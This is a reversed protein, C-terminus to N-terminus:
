EPETNNVSGGRDWKVEVFGCYGTVYFCDVITLPSNFTRIKQASSPYSAHVRHYVRLSLLPIYWVFISLMHAPTLFIPCPQDGSPAKVTPKLQCESVLSYLDREKLNRPTQPGDDSCM